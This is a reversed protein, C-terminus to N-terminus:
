FTSAYISLFVYGLVLVIWFDKTTLYSYWKTKRRELEQLATALEMRSPVPEAMYIEHGDKVGVGNGSGSGSTTPGFDDNSKRCSSDNGIITSRTEIVSTKTEASKSDM